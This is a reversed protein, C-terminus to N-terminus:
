GRRRRHACRARRGPCPSASDPNTAARITQLDQQVRWHASLGIRLDYSGYALTGGSYRPGGSAGFKATELLERSGDWVTVWFQAEGSRDELPGFESVIPRARCVEAKFGLLKPGIPRAKSGHAPACTTEARGGILHSLPPASPASTQPDVLVDRRHVCGACCGGRNSTHRGLGLPEAFGLAASPRSGHPTMAKRLLARRAWAASGRSARAGECGSCGVRILRDRGCVRGSISWSRSPDGGAAGRRPARRRRAGRRPARSWALAWPSHARRRWLFSRWATRACAHPSRNRDSSRAEPRSLGRKRSVHARADM